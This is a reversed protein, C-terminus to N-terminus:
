SVESARRIVAIGGEYCAPISVHTISADGDLAALQEAVRLERWAPQQLVAEDGGPRDRRALVDTRRVLLVSPTSILAHFEEAPYECRPNLCFVLGRAADVGYVAQNHWADNGVLQLNLEAIVATGPERLLGALRELLADPSPFSAGREFTGTLRGECVREVSAICELLTCGAVSRSALYQPLPADNARTRCTSAALVAQPSPPAPLLMRIVTAVATAGCASAGLQLIEQAQAEEHTWVGAYAESM